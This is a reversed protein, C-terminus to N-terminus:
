LFSDISHQTSPERHSQSTMSLPSLTTLRRHRHLRKKEQACFARFDILLDSNCVHVVGLADSTDRSLQRREFPQSRMHLLLIKTTTVAHLAQTSMHSTHRTSMAVNRALTM